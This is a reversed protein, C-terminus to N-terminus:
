RDCGLTNRRPAVAGGRHPGGDRRGPFATAQLISQFYNTYFGIVGFLYGSLAAVTASRSSVLIRVARPAPKAHAPNTAAM